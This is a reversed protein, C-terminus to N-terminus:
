YKLTIRAIPYRKYTKESYESNEYIFRLQAYHNEAFEKDTGRKQEFEIKLEPNSNLIEGAIEDFVYPSFYEKRSLIGDFFNWNFFSDEGEPELVQVLYENAIQNTPILFDGAYYPLLGKRVSVKTNSHLYHGNYAYPATDFNDIYYYEVDLLTDSKLTHMEVGNLKLREIAASWAQPIIYFDPSIIETKPIYNTYNRIMKEWKSNRDFYYSELGSVSSTKYKIEYGKFNIEEYNSTDLKWSLSYNRKNRINQQSLNRIEHIESGNEALYFSTNKIFHYISLVRDSFDKFMHTELTFGITNFLSAYGTTYRPYDMFAIIGNKPDKRDKSMVYPIAEYPGSAMRKYLEPLMGDYLYDSLPQNLKDKQTAIVTLTYQYDSGNSTHTDILVDPDWARMIKVFSRANKTDLKIFDRNLDMNIANARFGHEIPGNQNARHFKGRNLAGGVNLLPIICIVTNNLVERYEEKNELVELAFKASADVGCPEGPHIGNNILLVNLGKEKVIDPDFINQGSLVFLHLPKGSDTEGATMLKCGEFHDNLYQYFAISEEWTLTENEEYRLSIQSFLSLPISILISFIIKNYAHHLNNIKM